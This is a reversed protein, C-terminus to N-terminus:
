KFGLFCGVHFCDLISPLRSLYKDICLADSGENKLMVQVDNTSIPFNRCDKSLEHNAYEMWDGREFDNGSKDLLSSCCIGNSCIKVSIQSDTGADVTDCM